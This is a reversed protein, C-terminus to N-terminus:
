LAALDDDAPCKSILSVEPDDCPNAFDQPTVPSTYDLQPNKPVQDIEVSMYWDYYYQDALRSNEHGQTFKDFDGVFYTAVASFMQFNEATVASKLLQLIKRQSCGNYDIIVLFWADKEPTWPEQRTHYAKALAASSFCKTCFGQFGYHWGAFFSDIENLTKLIPAKSYDEIFAPIMEDWSVSNDFEPKALPDPHRMIEKLHDVIKEVLPWNRARVAGVLAPIPCIRVKDLFSKSGLGRTSEVLGAFYFSYYDPLPNSAAGFINYKQVLGELRALFHSNIQGSDVLRRISYFKQARFYEVLESYTKPMATNKALSAALARARHDLRSLNVLDREPAFTFLYYLVENPFDDFSM